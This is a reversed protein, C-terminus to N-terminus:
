NITEEIQVVRPELRKQIELFYSIAQSLKRVAMEANRKDNGLLPKGTDVIKIISDALIAAFQEVQAALDEVYPVYAEPNDLDGSQVENIILEVNDYFKMIKEYTDSHSEGSIVM